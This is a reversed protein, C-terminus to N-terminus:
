ATVGEAQVFDFIKDLGTIEFVRKIRPNPCILDVCGGDAQRARKQAGILVGLATADFYDVGTLDITIHKEGEELLRILRQKLVPATYVDVEGRLSVVKGTVEIEMGPPTM